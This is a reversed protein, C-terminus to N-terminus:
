NELVSMVASKADGGDKTTVDALWEDLVAMNNRLWDNGADAPDAGNDLTDIMLQNEMEVSFSLNKLLQGINPCAELYGARVNSYVVAAGFDPELLLLHRDPGDTREWAGRALHTETIPREPEAQDEGSTRGAIRAESGFVGGPEPLPQPM